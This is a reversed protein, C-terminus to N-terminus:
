VRYRGTFVEEAPGTMFVDGTDCWEIQLDGGPLHATASRGTRGNLASAVVSACTGTGCALTVGAGREWVRLKIESPGIVEVFEVNTKRPFAAHTEIMPGVLELPVDTVSDVFIVCHPNGMSVCSIDYTRGDVRLPQSVVQGDYGVVPIERADLRPKGMNVRFGVGRGGTFVIDVTMIGALTEVTMPTKARNRDLLYRCFCRIGNGCMEPESGDSNIIQMRYDAVTSPHVLILGDAGIGFNRDCMRVALESLDPVEPPSQLADVIVFDNGLGQAKAFEIEQM